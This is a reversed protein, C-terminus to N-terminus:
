SQYSSGMQKRRLKKAEEEAAEESAFLEAMYTMAAARNRERVERIKAWEESTLQPQPLDVTNAQITSLEIMRTQSAQVRLPHEPRIIVSLQLSDEKGGKEDATVRLDISLRNLEQFDEIMINERRQHKRYARYTLAGNLGIFSVLLVGNVPNINGEKESTWINDILGDWLAVSAVGCAILSRFFDRIIFTTNEFKRGLSTFSLLLFTMMVGPPLILIRLRNPDKGDDFVDVIFNGIFGIELGNWAFELMRKLGYKFRQNCSLQDRVSELQKGRVNDKLYVEYARRVHPPMSNKLALWEELGESDTSKDLHYKMHTTLRFLKLLSSYKNGELCRPLIYDKLFTIFIAVMGSDKLLDIILDPDLQDFDNIAMVLFVCASFLFVMKDLSLKAVESLKELYYLAGQLCNEPSLTNSLRPIINLEFAYGLLGAVFTYYSRPTWVQNSTGHGAAQTYSWLMVAKINFKGFEKLLDFVFTASSQAASKTSQWVTSPSPCCSKMYSFM